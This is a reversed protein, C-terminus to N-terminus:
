SLSSVQKLLTEGNLLETCGYTIQRDPHRKGYEQVHHYESYSGGGIVFVLVDRYPPRGKAPAGGHQEKRRPDLTLFTDDESGPKFECLNDLVRTVYNDDTRTLFQQVQGLVGATKSQM